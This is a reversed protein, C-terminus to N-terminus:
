NGDAPITPSLLGTVSFNRVNSKTGPVLGSGGVIQVSWQYVEPNLGQISVSTGETFVERELTNPSSQKWIKLNYSEGNGLSQGQWAFTIATGQTFSEGNGPGSLAIQTRASSQGITATAVRTPNTTPQTASSITPQGSTTATAPSRTNTSRPTQTPIPTNTATPVLRTSTGVVQNTPLTNVVNTIVPQQTITLTATPTSTGLEEKEFAGFFADGTFLYSGLMLFTVCVATIGLWTSLKLVGEVKEPSNDDNTLAWPETVGQASLTGLGKTKRSRSKAIVQPTHTISDDQLPLSESVSTNRQPFPPSAEPVNQRGINFLQGTSDRMFLVATGWEVGLNKSFLDKRAEALAYDVITGRALNSYFVEAFLMAAHDSIEFQMAIVAPLGQQVLSQAVGAFPDTVSSRAGECSNLLVLRLSRRYDYLLIGLDQGSIRHSLFADNEFLLQGDERENDYGGHGIYHLVNFDIRQLEQRLRSLSPHDLRHIELIGQHELPALTTKLRKWEQEVDLALYDTPSAIVVLMKLPLTVNIAYIPSPLELYRVVSSEISLSLFRNQAKDYLYEWPLDALTAAQNLRMRYRVSKGEREAQSQIQRLADRVLGAFASEFLKGGIEKALRIEPRDIRRVAARGRHRGMELLAVELEHKKFPYRFQHEAQGYVSEIHITYTNKRGVRALRVDVNIYDIM